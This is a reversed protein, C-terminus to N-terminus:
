LRPRRGTSSERGLSVCRGPDKSASIERLQHAQRRKRARAESHDSLLNGRSRVSFLSNCKDAGDGGKKLGFLIQCSVERHLINNCLRKNFHSSFAAQSARMANKKVGAGSHSRGEELWVESFARKGGFGM